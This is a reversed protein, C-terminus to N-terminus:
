KKSDFPSSELYLTEPTIDIDGPRAVTGGEIHAAHFLSADRLRSFVGIDLYPTLYFYRKEHNEFEILLRFNPQPVVCIVDLLM